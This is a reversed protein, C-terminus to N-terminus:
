CCRLSIQLFGVGHRGRFFLCTSFRKSVNRKKKKVPAPDHNTLSLDYVTMPFNSAAPIAKHQLSFFFVFFVALAAPIFILVTLCFSSWVTVSGGSRSRRRSLFVEGQDVPNRGKVLCCNGLASDVRTRRRPERGVRSKAEWHEGAQRKGTLAAALFHWM